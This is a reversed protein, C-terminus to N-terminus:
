ALFGLIVLAIVVFGDLGSVARHTYEIMRAVSPATPIFQGDCLPWHAGCGDGSNTARVVTGIMIVVLNYFLVFWAYRAFFRALGSAPKAPEDPSHIEKASSTM